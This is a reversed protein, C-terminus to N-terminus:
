SNHAHQNEFEGHIRNRPASVPVEVWRFTLECVYGPSMVAQDAVEVPQRDKMTMGAVCTMEYQRHTLHLASLLKFFPAPAMLCNIANEKILAMESNSAFRQVGRLRIYV